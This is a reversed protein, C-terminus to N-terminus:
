EPVAGGASYGDFFALAPGRSTPYIMFHYEEAGAYGGLRNKANILCISYYGYYTKGYDVNSEGLGGSIWYKRPESCQYTASAPDVLRQAMYNKVANTMFDRSPKTGYNAHQIQEPKPKAVCASLLVALSIVLMDKTM